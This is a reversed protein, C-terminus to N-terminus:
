RAMSTLLPSKKKHFETTQEFAYASALLKTDSLPPGVLQLGIPLGGKGFGCPLSLAPLGALNAPISAIDSLYMQLPDDTKDGFQFAVTPSTPSILFDYSQFLKQFDQALLRRVQQAKKYYADYYGSSLVYTGLMIRRKVEPGFGSQRSSNYMSLIDKSAQDRYGYKVGDFRALNSSAEATALIYYVALANKSRPLSVYDVKAGLAVFTKCAEEIAAKVEPENGEGTLEEIVGIKMNALGREQGFSKFLNDFNNSGLEKDSLSTSDQPDHGAISALTRATDEVSQAIPGIQDLSSAFAIMGFRSVMGYTPKMGVIGCVSAPQRVSGGTDSGLAISSYGAAVAACSGGSSGGPVCKTDWPNRTPKFASNETSSGMAFEDLNTKGVCIAGSNFLKKVATSYYFPVFDKLIKSSCTTPYEPICLNDKLAVPVGALSPLEKGEAVLADINQAQKYALDKTLCTFAGIEEESKEIHEFHSQLIEKASVEKTQLLKRIESIGMGILNM